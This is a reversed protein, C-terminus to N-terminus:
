RGVNFMDTGRHLQTKECWRMCNWIFVYTYIQSFSQHFSIDMDPTFIICSVQVYIADLLGTQLGAITQLYRNFDKIEFHFTFSHQESYM